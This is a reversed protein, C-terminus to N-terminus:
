REIKVVQFKSNPSAAQFSPLERELELATYTQVSGGLRYGSPWALPVQGDFQVELLIFFEKNM